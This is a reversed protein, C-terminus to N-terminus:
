KSFPVFVFKMIVKEAQSASFYYHRFTFRVTALLPPPSKKGATSDEGRLPPQKFPLILLPRNTRVPWRPYFHLLRSLSRLLRGEKVQGRQRAQWEEKMLPGRGGEREGPPHFLFSLCRGLFGCMSSGVQCRTQPVLDGEEEM